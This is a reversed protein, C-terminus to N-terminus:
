YDGRGGGGELMHAGINYCTTLHAWAGAAYGIPLALLILMVMPRWPLSAIRILKFTDLFYASILNPYYHRSLFNFTALLHVSRVDGIRLLGTGGLLWFLMERQAGYPYQWTYPFGVEGRARSYTIAFLLLISMFLVAMPLKMGALVMFGLVILLSVVLVAWLWRPAERLRHRVAWLLLVAMAVYGGASQEHPYPYGQFKFGAMAGVVAMVKLVFYFFWVSFLVDQPVLYGFGVGEPLQYIRLPRIAVLPMSEFHQGLDYVRRLAPFSPYLSQMINLVNYITPISFGLWMLGDRFFPPHDRPPKQEVLHLPLYLLPFTLRDHEIWVREFLKVITALLIYLAFFFICWLVLPTLWAEWPVQANPSGEFYARIVVRDHPVMWEPLSDWLDRFNNEPSAFYFPVTLCPFFARFGGYKSIPLALCVFAYLALAEVRRVAFQPILRNWVIIFILAVLAPLPPNGGIVESGGILLESRRLWANTGIVLAVGLLVVIGWRVREREKVVGVQQLEQEDKAVSTTGSANGRREM